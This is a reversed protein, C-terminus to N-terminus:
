PGFPLFRLRISVFLSFFVINSLPVFVDLYLSRLFTYLVSCFLSLVPFAMDPGANRINLFRVCVRVTLM